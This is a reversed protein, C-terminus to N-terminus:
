GAGGPAATIPVQEEITKAWASPERGKGLLLLLSAGVLVGIGAITLYLEYGGTREMTIGLLLAGSATSFSTCFTLLGMVSSYIEVGFHRAVLVATNRLKQDAGALARDRGQLSILVVCILVAAVVAFGFGALANIPSTLSTILRRARSKARKTPNSFTTHDTM